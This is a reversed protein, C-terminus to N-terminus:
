RRTMEEGKEEEDELGGDKNGKRRRGTERGRRKKGSEEWEEWGRREKGEGKRRRNM